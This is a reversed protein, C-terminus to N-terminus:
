FRSLLFRWFRGQITGHYVKLFGGGFRRFCCRWFRGQIIGNINVEAIPFKDISADGAVSVHLGPIVASLTIFKNEAEETISTFTMGMTHFFKTKVQLARSLSISSVIVAIGCLSSNNLSADVTQHMGALAM